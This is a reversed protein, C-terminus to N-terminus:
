WRDRMLSPERLPLFPVATHRPDEYYILFTARQHWTRRRTGAEQELLALRGDQPAEWQDQHLDRLCALLGQPIASM